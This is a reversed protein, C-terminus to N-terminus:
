RQTVSGTKEDMRLTVWDRATGAIGTAHLM